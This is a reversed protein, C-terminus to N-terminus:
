EKVKRGNRMIALVNGMDRVGCSKIVGGGLYFTISM